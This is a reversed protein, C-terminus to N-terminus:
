KAADPGIPNRGLFDLVVQVFHNTFREPVEHGCRPLVCLEANPMSEYMEVAIRVPFFRDRDGHIILAPSPITRLQQPTYAHDDAAIVSGEWQDNLKLRRAQKAPDELPEKLFQARQDAAVKSVTKKDYDDFIHSGIILTMTQVLDPRALALPFQQMAGSSIGLFHARRIGTADCFAALDKGLETHLIQPDGPNTTQGHGRWDLAILRCQKGLPELFRDFARVNGTFGHLLVLPQAQASGHEEYYMQIDRVQITPM